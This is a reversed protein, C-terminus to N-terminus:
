REFLASIADIDRENIAAGTPDMVIGQGLYAWYIFGARSRALSADVGADILLLRMYEIRAIDVEAVTSAVAKDEAAWIRIARDLGRKGFFARRVLTRLRDARAVSVDFERIVGEVARDRWQTLVHTRFDAFDAFHWYFSGRSVGLQEAMAGVKLASVGATALARLGHDIWDQRTLQTSMRQGYVLTNVGALWLRVEM